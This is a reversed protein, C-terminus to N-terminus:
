KRMKLVAYVGFHDSLSKEEMMRGSSVVEVNGKVLIYDIRVGPRHVPFTYGPDDNCARYADIFGREKLLKLALSDETDNFDGALVVAHYESDYLREIENLLREVQAKRVMSNKHHDLHVSVFLIRRGHIKVGSVAAHRPLLPSLGGLDNLGISGVVKFPYKSLVAVGEPYREYFLHSEIFHVRYNEGTLEGLMEALREATSKDGDVVVEQLACIDPRLKSLREAIRPLRVRDNKGKGHLNFTCTTILSGSNGNNGERRM